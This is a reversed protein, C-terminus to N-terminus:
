ATASLPLTVSFFAPGTDYNRPIIIQGPQPDLDFAGLRTVRVSPRTLDTAFAPRENFIADGNLDRGTTINFPRGSMATVFPSLRFGWPLGSISGFLSFRHRTNFVFRGY